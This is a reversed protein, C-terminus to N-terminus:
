FLSLARKKAERESRWRKWERWLNRAWWRTDLAAVAQELETAPRVEILQDCLCPRAFACSECVELAPVLRVTERQRRVLEVVLGQLRKVEESLARIQDDKTM